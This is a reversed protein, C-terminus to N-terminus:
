SKRVTKAYFPVLMQIVRESNCAPCTVRERGHDLISEVRSFVEDCDECKYQYTPM